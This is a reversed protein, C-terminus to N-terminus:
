NRITILYDDVKTYEEILIFTTPYERLPNIKIIRKWPKNSKPRLVIATEEIKEMTFPISYNWEDDRNEIENDM